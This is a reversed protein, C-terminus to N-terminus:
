RFRRETSGGRSLMADRSPLSGSPASASAMGGRGELAACAQSVADTVDDHKGFPFAGMEEYMQQRWEASVVSIRGQEGATAILQARVEKSGSPRYEEVLAVGQLVQRYHDIQSLGSQGPEREIVVKVGPGDRRAAALVEAEVQAPSGRLRIVDEICFSGALITTEMETGEGVVYPTPEPQYSVLAGVSYDPDPNMASPISGALDWSRVKRPYDPAFKVIRFKSPDILSGSTDLIEGLLEQAGLASGAYLAELEELAAASLNARNDYTTGRTVVVKPGEREVLKRILNVPKPTTTVVIQPNAGTRLALRLQDWSDEYEWSSLEDCWAGSLNFGRVRDPQDASLTVILSGNPLMLEGNTRNWAKVPLEVGRRRLVSLVGSPHGDDGGRGEMCIKRAAGFTPAEVGWVGSITLAQEVLWEAGTRTKGWARGSMIMWVSWDGPPPRQHDRAEPFYCDSLDRNMEELATVYYMLLAADGAEKADVIMERLIDSPIDLLPGYDRMKELDAETVLVRGDIM